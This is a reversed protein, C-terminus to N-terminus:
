WWGWSWGLRFAWVVEGAVFGAVISLLLALGIWALIALTRGIVFGVGFATEVRNM